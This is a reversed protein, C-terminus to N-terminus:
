GAYQKPVKGSVIYAFAIVQAVAVYLARPIEDGLELRSLLLLLDPDEHLPIGYEEAIELIRQALEGEGKATIRPANVGDYRLAVASTPPRKTDRKNM